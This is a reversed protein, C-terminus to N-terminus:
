YYIIRTTTTTMTTPQSQANLMDLQHRLMAAHMQAQQLKAGFQLRTQRLAEHRHQVFIQFLEYDQSEVMSRYYGERQLLLNIADELRRMLKTMLRSSQGILFRWIERLGDVDNDRYMDKALKFLSHKAPDDTKDPHTKNAIKRYLRKAIDSGRKKPAAKREEEEFNRSENASNEGDRGSNGLNDFEDDLDDRTNKKRKKDLLEASLKRIEAEVTHINDVIDQANSEFAKFMARFKITLDEIQAEVERTRM